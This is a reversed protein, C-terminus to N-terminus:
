DYIEIPQVKDITYLWNNKNDEEVLWETPWIVLHGRIGCLMKEMMSVTPLEIDATAKHRNQGASDRSNTTGATGARKRSPLATSGSRSHQAKARVSEEGSKESDQTLPAIQDESSPSSGSDKRTKEGTSDEDYHRGEALTEANSSTDSDRKGAHNTSAAGTARDATAQGGRHFKSAPAGAPGGGPASKSLDQQDRHGGQMKALDESYKEWKHYDRWTKVQDDPQCRFVERFIDTNSIALHCWTKVYFDDCLPDAFQNPDVTAVPKGTIPNSFPMEHVEEFTKDGSEEAHTRSTFPGANGAGLHVLPTTAKGKKLGYEKYLSELRDQAADIREKSTSYPKGEGNINDKHMILSFGIDPDRKAHELEEERNATRPMTSPIGRAIPNASTSVKGRGFDKPIKINEHEAFWEKSVAAGTNEKTLDRDFSKGGHELHDNAEIITWNKDKHETAGAALRAGMESKNHLKGSGGINDLQEPDWIKVMEDYKCAKALGDMNFETQECEDVNVGLHERMLRIRLTHAFRGVQFAEGGMTSEMMDTDRVVAAVESDRNGRQSRENINASGIIAARDDVIMCKAHIYVMESVLVKPDEGVKGWGRLGFFNIYHAPDIGAKRVRGFISKPGRSITNFQCKMIYRLATGENGDVSGPFGPMMPVVIIAKWLEKNRHARIIREVLADGIGNTIQTGEVETSTIFFQNEIYVFHESAKIMGCYANHISCETEDLGLSWSGSSRLIQVECTGTVGHKELDAPLYEAPPLLMPVPKKPPKTRILYNWRQVFHRAVDRAAQGLICMSIDHWGMRPIKSRDYLEAYPKDLTHFDLVRPNSYDKGPWVEPDDPFDDISSPALRVEDPGEHENKATYRGDDKDDTLVHEPSDWRGFCLDLGGVFALENDIALIKEHHAWFFTIQKLHGPSRQVMINPHLGMLSYKTYTSDIPVTTGVNQYIIIFIKVGEQAKRQLLRDLRWKESLAPPRRMYLEPSLWWDHIYIVDRANYIARSVNWFYDRGDVLWQAAVNTRVPAFSGFRHKKSWPSAESLKAISSTFQELQRGNKAVLNVRRESNKLKFSHHSSHTHGTQEGRDTILSVDNAFNRRTMEFHHDFYFVDYIETAGPHAIVAMYSERVMFWRPQHRRKIEVPNCTFGRTAGKVSRIALYGEKGAIREEKALRIGLTSIELFKCLRNCEERFTFAILCKRLWVGVKHSVVKAYQQDRSLMPAAGGVSGALAGIGAALGPGVEKALKESRSGRDGIKRAGRFYPLAESPFDPVKSAKGLRLKRRIGLAINLRWFDELDRTITWHKAATGTGYRLKISLQTHLRADRDDVAPEIEFDLMSFLVPLRHTKGKDDMLFATAALSATLSGVMLLTTIDNSMALKERKAQKKFQVRNKIRDWRERNRSTTGSTM